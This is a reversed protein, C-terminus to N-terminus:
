RPPAEAKVVVNFGGSKLGSLDVTVFHYGASKLAQDVVERHELLMQIQDVPVEIRAVNDHHRVRVEYLGLRHLAAEAAEVQSLEKITM